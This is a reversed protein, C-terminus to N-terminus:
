YRIGLGRYLAGIIWLPGILFFQLDQAFSPKKGEIGHGVFQFIWSVVFIGLMVMWLRGAVMLEIAESFYFSLVTLVLMGIGLRFNMKFYYVMVLTSILMAANLQVGLVIADGLKICWLLGIVSVYILPVFIWHILKNTKNQHSEGYQSLLNEIKSM